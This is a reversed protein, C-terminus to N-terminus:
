RPLVDGLTFPANTPVLGGGPGRAPAEPQPAQAAIGDAFYDVDSADDDLDSDESAADIADAAAARM